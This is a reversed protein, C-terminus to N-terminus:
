SPPEAARRVETAQELTRYEGLERRGIRARYRIAGSRQRHLSVGAVGTKSRLDLSRNLQNQSHTASRLNSLRNSATGDRHDVEDPDEGHIM